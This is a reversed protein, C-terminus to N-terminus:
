SYRSFYTQMSKMDQLHFLNDDYAFTLYMVDKGNGEHTQGEGYAVTYEYETQVTAYFYGKSNVQIQNVNVKTFKIKELKTNGEEIQKKMQNYSDELDSTFEKEIDKFAKNELISQYITSLDKKAQVLLKNKLNEPIQADTVPISYTGSSRNANVEVHVSFGLPLKVEAQYPLAFLTPIEYVDEETSLDEKKYTKDVQIGELYLTSGHMVRIQFSEKIEVQKKTPKWDDFFVYRKDKGKSLTVTQYRTEGNQTYSITVYATKGDTSTESKTVSYNSINNKEKEGLIRETLKNFVKQNVFTSEEVDLYKYLKNGDYTILAGFYDKAIEEKSTIHRLSFFLSLFLLIFILSIVLLIKTSKAVQKREKQVKKRPTKEKKPHKKEKSLYIGCEACYLAEKPNHTGCEKCYM